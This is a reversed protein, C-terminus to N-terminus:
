DIENSYAGSRDITKQVQAFRELQFLAQYLIGNAITSETQGQEIALEAIREIVRHDLWLGKMAYGTPPRGAGIRAGGKIGSM